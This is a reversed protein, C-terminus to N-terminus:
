ELLMFSRVKPLWLKKLHLAVSRQRHCCGPPFLEALEGPAYPRDTQMRSYTTRTVEGQTGRVVMEDLRAQNGRLRIEEIVSRLVRGRPLLLLSWADGDGDFTVEYDRELAKRDGDFLLMLQAIFRRAEEHAALDIEEVGLGDEIRVRDGDLLLSAREPELPFRLKRGPPAYYLV